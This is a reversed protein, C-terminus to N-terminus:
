SPVRTAVRRQGAKNKKLANTMVVQIIQENNAKRVTLIPEM